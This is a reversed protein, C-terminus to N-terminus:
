PQPWIYHSNWFSMEILSVHVNLKWRNMQICFLNLSVRLYVRYKTLASKKIPFTRNVVISLLKLMITSDHKKCTNQHRVQMTSAWSKNGGGKQLLFYQRNHTHTYTQAYNQKYEYPGKILSLKENLKSTIDLQCVTNLEINNNTTTSNKGNCQTAMFKTHTIHGFKLDFCTTYHKHHNSLHHYFAFYQRTLRINCLAQCIKPQVRGYVCVCDLSACLLACLSWKERKNQTKNFSGVDVAWISEIVVISCFRVFRVNSIRM